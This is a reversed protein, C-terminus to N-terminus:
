YLNEAQKPYLLDRLIYYSHATAVSEGTINLFGVNKHIATGERGDPSIDAAFVGYITRRDQTIPMTGNHPHYELAHSNTNPDWLLRPLENDDLQDRM